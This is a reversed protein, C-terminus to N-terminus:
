KTVSYDHFFPCPSPPFSALLLFYSIEPREDRTKIVGFPTAHSPISTAYNATSHPAWKSHFIWLGLMAGSVVRLSNCKAFSYFFMSILHDKAMFHKTYHYAKIIKQTKTYLIIIMTLFWSVLFFRKKSM